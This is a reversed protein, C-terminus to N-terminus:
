SNASKPLVSPPLLSPSLLSTPSSSCAPLHRPPLRTSNVYCKPLHRPPRRLLLPHPPLRTSNVHCKPLTSALQASAKNEKLKVSVHLIADDPTINLQLRSYLRTADQM